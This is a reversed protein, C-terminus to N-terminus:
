EGKWRGEQKQRAWIEKHKNEVREERREIRSVEKDKSVDGGKVGRDEWGRVMIVM